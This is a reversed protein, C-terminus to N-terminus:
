EIFIPKVIELSISTLSLTLLRYILEEQVYIQVLWADVNEKESVMSFMIEKKKAWKLM